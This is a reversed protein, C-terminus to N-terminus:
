TGPNDLHPDINLGCVGVIRGDSEAAFLAEGRRSFRNDGSEWENVVRRILQYGSAESEILLDALRDLSLDPPRAIAIGETM